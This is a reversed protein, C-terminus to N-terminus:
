CKKQEVRRSPIRRGVQFYRQNERFALMEVVVFQFKEVGGGSGNLTAFIEVHLVWQSSPILSVGDFKM